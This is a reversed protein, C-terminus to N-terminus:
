RSTSPALVCCGRSALRRQWAHLLRRQGARHRPRDQARLWHGVAAGPEPQRRVWNTVKSFDYVGEAPMVECWFFRNHMGTAADSAACQQRCADSGCSNCYFGPTIDGGAAPGGPPEMGAVTFKIEEPPVGIPPTSPPYLRMLVFWLLALLVILSFPLLVPLARRLRSEQYAPPETPNTM